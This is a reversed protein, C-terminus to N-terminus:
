RSQLWGDALTQIVPHIKELPIAGFGIMVLNQPTTTQYYKSVPDIAIGMELALEVARKEELWEPLQIIVHLGATDGFINFEAPLYTQLAELLTKRKKRYLTRMKEIHKAYYGSHMFEAVVLQDIRSVTPKQHQYFHRFEAALSKPLVMYSMRISPILTKSFTGFYIVRELQDLHSLPPIPLGKYRFEADYDDEILYADVEKAWQLLQVKREMSMVAGLPFQHAPTVYYLKVKKSPISAGSDDIKVYEIEYNLQKFVADARFFGPEEMAVPIKGFFICLAQLQQQTGSDIFIQEPDCAIGRAMHLYETIENRLPLEGQWSSNHVPHAELQRKYLKQWIKYPFAEPDVQGNKLNYVQREEAIQIAPKKAVPAQLWDENYEAIFYGSREISYLYGESLLQEYANQVTQISVNLQEALKRKSPLKENPRLQKTIIKEKLQEYISIYKPMGELFEFQLEM